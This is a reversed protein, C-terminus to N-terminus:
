CGAGNLAVLAAPLSFGRARLYLAAQKIDYAAIMRAAFIVVELMLLKCEIELPTGTLVIAARRNHQQTETTM